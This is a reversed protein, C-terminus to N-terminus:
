ADSDSDGDAIPSCFHQHSHAPAKRMELLEDYSTIVELDSLVDPALYDSM